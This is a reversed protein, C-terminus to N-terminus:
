KQEIDKEIGQKPGQELNKKELLHMLSWDNRADLPQFARDFYGRPKDSGHYRHCAVCDSRAGVAGGAVHPTHCKACSAYGDIMVQDHDLTPTGPKWAAGAAAHCGVCAVSRHARHDFSANKLWVSPVETRMPSSKLPSAAADQPFEHCQVCRDRLMQEARPLHKQIWAATEATEEKPRKGPFGFGTEDNADPSKAKVALFRDVIAGKVAREMQEPGLGHPMLELKADVEAVPAYTQAHCAACHREFNVPQMYDGDNPLQAGTSVSEHCSACELKLIGAAGVAYAAYDARHQEPLDSLKKPLERDNELLKQGLAMHRAHSFKLHGPDPGALAKFEPHGVAFSDIAGAAFPAARDVLRIDRAHADVDRHCNTCNGDAVLTLKADLGRHERHCASCAQEETKLNTHHAGGSHCQQCQIVGHRSPGGFLAFSEGSTPEFPKHCAACQKDWMAHVSAVPGPSHQKSDAVLGFAAWGGFLLVAVVTLILKIRDVPDARRYYTLPIREVRMKSAYKSPNDEAPNQAM